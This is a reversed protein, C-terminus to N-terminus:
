CQAYALQGLPRPSTKSTSFSTDGAITSADDNTWQHDHSPVAWIFVEPASRRWKVAALEISM